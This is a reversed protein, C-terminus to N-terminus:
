LGSELTGILSKVRRATDEVNTNPDHDLVLVGGEFSSWSDGNSCGAKNQIVIKTMTEKLADRGLDDATISNLGEILPELYVAPVHTAYLHSWGEEAVSDWDIEIEIEFGAATQVRSLLEPLAGEQFEKLARKEALGM